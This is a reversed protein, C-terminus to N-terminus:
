IEIEDDAALAPDYRPWPAKLLNSTEGTMKWLEHALYPAMPALLLALNHLIGHLVHPRIVSRQGQSGDHSTTPTVINGEVFVYLENVLEMIASICTNFHWRGTFDDTIKRITKHLTRQLERDAETAPSTM